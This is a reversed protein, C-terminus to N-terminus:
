GKPLAILTFADHSKGATRNFGALWAREVTM